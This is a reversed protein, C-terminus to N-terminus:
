FALGVRGRVLVIINNYGPYGTHTEFLDCRHKLTPTVRVVLVLVLQAAVQAITDWLDDHCDELYEDAGLAPYEDIVAKLRPWGGASIAALLAMNLALTDGVFGRM